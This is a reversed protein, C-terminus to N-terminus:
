SPFRHCGSRLPHSRVFTSTLARARIASSPHSQRRIGSSHRIVRRAVHVQPSPLCRRRSGDARVVRRQRASPRVTSALLARHRGRRRHRHRTRGPTERAASDVARVGTPWRRQEQRDQLGSKVLYVQGTKPRNDDPEPTASAASAIPECIAATAQGDPRGPVHSLVRRALEPKSGFRRFVKHDPFSRDRQRKMRVGRSGPLSGVGRDSRRSRRSRCRRSAGHDHRRGLLRGRRCRSWRM